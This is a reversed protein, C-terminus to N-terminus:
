MLFLFTFYMCSARVIALIPYKFGPDLLTVCFHYPFCLNIFSFPSFSFSITVMHSGWLCHYINCWSWRYVDNHFTLVLSINSTLSSSTPSPSLLWSPVHLLSFPITAFEVRLSDLYAWRFNQVWPGALAPEIVKWLKWKPSELRIGQHISRGWIQNKMKCSKIKTSELNLNWKWIYLPTRKLKSSWM